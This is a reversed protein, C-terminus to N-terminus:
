PKRHTGGRLALGVVFLQGARDHKADNWLLLGGAIANANSGLRTDPPLGTLKKTQGGGLVVYDAQLGDKLLAVVEEVHRQWKKRGMRELGRAGLYDEYTGGKRYPMHALELPALVGEFVLASGLGTGLGLFLMRGGDYSGLAQMAADNIVRVPRSFAKEFDFAVWGPGLNRPERAPHGDEVPGPFGVSVAEYDWGRTAEAVDRAMREPTLDPGSPIKLPPEPGGLSVKINTGGVDIVLVKM